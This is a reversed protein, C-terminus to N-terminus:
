NMTILINKELLFISLYYVDREEMRIVCKNWLGCFKCFRSNILHLQPAWKKMPLANKVFGSFRKQLLLKLDWV